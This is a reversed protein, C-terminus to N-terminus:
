GDNLAVLGAARAESRALVWGDVIVLEDDRAEARVVPELRALEEEGGELGPAGAEALLDRLRDRDAEDPVGALYAHGIRAIGNADPPIVHGGGTSWWRDWAVVGATSVGVVAGGIAGLVARRSVRPGTGATM